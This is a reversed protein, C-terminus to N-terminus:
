PAPGMGRDGVLATLGPLEVKAGCAPGYTRHAAAIWVQAVTRGTMM